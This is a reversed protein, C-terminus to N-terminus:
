LSDWLLRLDEDDLAKLRWNLDIEFAKELYNKASGIEALQCCYCALNYKIVAEKPFKREANLLIEKAAKISNEHRTAYALSVPWQPNEPEFETLRRTLETMLEWKELGRYIEIRVALVEPAPRLFPDIKELEENADRYMGLEAYGRAADFFKQDPPEIPM